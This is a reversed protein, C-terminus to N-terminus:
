GARGARKECEELASRLGATLAEMDHVITSQQNVIATTDDRRFRLAAFVLSGLGGVAIVLAIM